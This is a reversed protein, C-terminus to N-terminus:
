ISIDLGGDRNMAISIPKGLSVIALRGNFPEPSVNSNTM